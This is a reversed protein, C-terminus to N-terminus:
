LAGYLAGILRQARPDGILHPSQRTMVYAASLGRAPDAFACSGGWGCHGVADPNTGFINLGSNRTFGAAWSMEYPLVRDQGHVRERTAAALVEPSLVTRGEFEGGTALVGVIRALDPATGHLNASPIEISRWEASGRGGPSSGKDLFAAKKIADIEGLSTAKTPKRMQAVRDHEAEPLGIWLDLGPFDERLATGMTRGDVIRFLEGALYGIVIPSYGSATGPAWMPTQACLRALTAERDFWIAPDEPTDFGPLGAQHSMMQAVTIRDKGAQGFAPWYSAVTAEYDMLGREVCTAILLAMVAKGTSFVPTLTREGFPITGAADASGGWLDIVTEGGMRVSFRAGQENLGEPADNFNAAFADKVAAFAAPCIGQIDPLSTM